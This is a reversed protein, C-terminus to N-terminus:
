ARRPLTGIPPHTQSLPPLSFPTRQDLFDRSFDREFAAMPLCAFRPGRTIDAGFSSHRGGQNPKNQAQLMVSNFRSSSNEGNQASKQKIKIATNYTQHFFLCSYQQAAAHSIHVGSQV